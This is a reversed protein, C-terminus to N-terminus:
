ANFFFEKNVRRMILGNNISNLDIPKVEKELYYEQKIYEAIDLGAEMSLIIGGGARANIEFLKFSGDDALMYQFCAPGRMNLFEGITATVELMDHKMDVQSDIVEGGAVRQRIRSVGGIFKSNRNFYCDVSYEAGDLKKQMVETKYDFDENWNAPRFGKSSNGFRPKIIKSDWMRCFPYYKAFYFGVIAEFGAKDYCAYSATFPSGIYNTYDLITLKDMCALYWPHAACVEKDNNYLHKCNKAILNSPANDETEYVSVNFGKKQFREILSIRRGAGLLLIDM